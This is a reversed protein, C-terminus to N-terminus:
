LNLKFNSALLKNNEEETIDFYGSVTMLQDLGDVLVKWGGNVSSKCYFTETTGSPDKVGVKVNDIYNMLAVDTRISGLKVTRLTTSAEGYLYANWGRIFHEIEDTSLPDVNERYILNIMYYSTPDLKVSKPWILEKLTEPIDMNDLIFQDGNSTKIVRVDEDFSNIWEVFKAAQEALYDLRYKGDSTLYPMNISGAKEGDAAVRRKLAVQELELAKKLIEEQKM